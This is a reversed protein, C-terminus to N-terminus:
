FGPSLTVYIMQHNTYAINISQNISQNYVTM